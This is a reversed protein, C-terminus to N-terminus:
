LTGTGSNWITFNTSANQGAQMTGFSYSSPTYALAPSITYIVLSAIFTGTGGNSSISVPCTYSGGSLGTTDINVTITDQEGTSNGSMPSITVWSSSEGLTYALTETGSNWITFTTSTINGSSMSGFNYSSPTYALSPSGGSAAYTCYISYVRNSNTTGSLSSPWTSGYTNSASISTYGSISSYYTYVHDTGSNAWSVLYYSTGTVLNPQTIFNFTQWTQKNGLVKEETTGILTTRDSSYIACKAKLTSQWCDLWVTISQAVGNQPCVFSTGAIYNSNLGATKAKTNYGFTGPAGSTLPICVTFLISIMLGTMVIVKVKKIINYKSIKNRM